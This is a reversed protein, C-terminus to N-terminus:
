LLCPCFVYIRRIELSHKVEGSQGAVCTSFCTMALDETELVCTNGVSDDECGRHVSQVALDHPRLPRIVGAASSMHTANTLNESSCSFSTGTLYCKKFTRTSRDIWHTRLPVRFGLTNM